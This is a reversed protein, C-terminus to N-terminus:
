SARDWRHPESGGYGVTFGYDAVIQLPLFRPSRDLSLLALLTLLQYFSSSSAQSPFFHPTSLSLSFSLTISPPLSPQCPRLRRRVAHPTGRRLSHSRPRFPRLLSRYHLSSPPLPHNRPRAPPSAAMLLRAADAREEADRPPHAIAVPHVALGPRARARRSGEATRRHRCQGQRGRPGGPIRGRGAGKAARAPRTCSRWPATRWRPARGPARRRPKPRGRFAPEQTPGTRSGRPRRM